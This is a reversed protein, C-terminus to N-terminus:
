RRKVGLYENLSRVQVVDM